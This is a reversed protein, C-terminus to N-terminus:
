KAPWQDKAKAAAESYPFDRLLQALAQRAEETKGLALGSVVTAYLLESRRSDNEAVASLLRCSTFARQFEKRQLELEIEPLGADLSMREAPIDFMLADLAKQADDPQGEEILINASELRAARTTDFNGGSAPDGSSLYQRRADGIKGRALLLDGKLLKELRREDATLDNGDIQGLVKEAEDDNGSWHIALDALRLKVKDAIPPSLHRGPALALRFSKDALVDDERAFTVGLKYFTVAADMTTFEDARNVMVTGAHTLLERDDARDALTVIATLDRAPTQTLDRNLFNNKASDFVDDRGWDPESWNPAIRVRVTNSAVCVGGDWAELRVRRLGAEPFFHWAQQGTAESGDDFYWHYSSDPFRDLAIFQVELAMVDGAAFQEINYWELYLPAAMASEFDTVHFATVPAFVQPPIVSFHDEGPPKWAAEAAPQDNFQIQVYDLRHQGARLQIDGRHEGQRGGDPSHTGLWDAVTRGDVQLYSAGGSVTAFSYVGDDPADFWGTFTAAYDSTPGFPNIGLFINGVYGCGEEAGASDLLRMVQSFDDVPQERCSRITLQVGARPQWGGPPMPLDAGFCIYYTREGSSTDFIIRTPDGLNSWIRQFPVPEGEATFVGFERVSNWCPAFEVTGVSAPWPSDTIPEIRLRLPATEVPNKRAFVSIPGALTLSAFIFTTALWVITRLIYRRQLDAMSIKMQTPENIDNM